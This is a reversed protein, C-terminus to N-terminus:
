WSEETITMFGFIYPM